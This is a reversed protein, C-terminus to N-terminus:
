GQVLQWDADRTDTNVDIIAGRLVGDAYDSGPNICLTRGLRVAGPSEHVHGHLGLLPQHSELALRVSRSGVSMTEVGAPGTVPRLSDDLHPAQDLATGFPPCHINFIAADFSDLNGALEALDDAIEEESRERPTHWPTPTSWGYSMLSLGGPMEAIGSEAYTIGQQGRLVDALDPFDDNGLMFYGPVGTDALREAALAAWRALADATVQRFLSDLRDPEADVEAQEGPSLVVSYRGMAHIADLAASLESASVTVIRGRGDDYAYRGDDTERIVVVLKGTIDGGLIVANAEYVRAANLFKRFCVESGHVDTAFVVRIRRGRRRRLM